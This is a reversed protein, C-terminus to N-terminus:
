LVHLLNASDYTSVNIQHTIESKNSEIRSLIGFKKRQLVFDRMKEFDNLKYIGIKFQHILKFIGEKIM